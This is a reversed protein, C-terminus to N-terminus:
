KGFAPRIEAPVDNLDALRSRQLARIYSVIAWRDEVPITKGFGSMLNTGSSIVSFIQGDPMNIMRKDHFNAMAVMNYKLTIGRGDGSDGHCPACYIQFREQGRILLAPSIPLPNTELWSHTGSVLGTTIPSEPSSNLPNQENFLSANEVTNTVRLHNSHSVLFPSQDQPRLIPQRIMDPFLEIGPRRTLNGRWGAISVIALITMCLTFYFARKMREGM